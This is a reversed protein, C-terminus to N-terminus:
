RRRKSGTLKAFDEDQEAILEKAMAHKEPPLLALAAEADKARHEGLTQIATSAMALRARGELTEAEGSNADARAKTRLSDYSSLTAENRADISEALTKLCAAMADDLALKKRKELLHSAVNAREKVVKATPLAVTAIRGQEPAGKNADRSRPAQASALAPLMALAAIGLASATFRM